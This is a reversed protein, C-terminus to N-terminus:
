WGGADFAGPLWEIDGAQVAVVDFRCPPVTRLRLLYHRAAFVLRKQKTWSVSAAAGGHSSSARRRVEVFVCTGDAARMILDIEGGGRGPTRYNRELLRLGARQLHALALDEAQDGLQKTSPSRSSAPGTKVLPIGM